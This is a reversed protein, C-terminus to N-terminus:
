VTTMPWLFDAKLSLGHGVQMFKQTKTCRYIEMIEGTGKMIIINEKNELARFIEPKFSYLYTFVKQSGKKFIHCITISKHGQLIHFM